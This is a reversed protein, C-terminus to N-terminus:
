FQFYLFPADASVSVFALAFAAGAATGIWGWPLSTETMLRDHIRWSNPALGALLAAAALLLVAREGMAAPGIEHPSLM